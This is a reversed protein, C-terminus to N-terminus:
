DALRRVTVLASITAVLLGILAIAAGVVVMGCLIYAVDGLTEAGLNRFLADFGYAGALFAAVVAATIADLLLYRRVRSM